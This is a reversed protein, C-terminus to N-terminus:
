CASWNIWKKGSIARIREAGIKAAFVQDVPAGGVLVKIRDRLGQAKLEALQEKVWATIRRNRAIQRDRYEAIFDASFPPKPGDPAFINWAPNREFPRSEDEISVDMWETLTLNRSLHAALLLVGTPCNASVRVPINDIVGDDMVARGGSIRARQKAITAVAPTCIFGLSSERGGAALVISVNETIDWVLNSKATAGTLNQAAYPGGGTIRITDSSAAAALAAQPSAYTGPVLRVTM